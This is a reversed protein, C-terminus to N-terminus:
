RILSVKAPAGVAGLPFYIEDDALWAAIDVRPNCMAAHGTPATILRSKPLRAALVRSAPFPVIWDNPAGFVLTPIDIEALRPRLDLGAILTFRRGYASMPVDATKTWWEDRVAKPIGPGFFFFGRVPNTAPLNPKHPLWPGTLALLDIFLRRPYYAFTNVLVLRRVLDPRELALMLAVAGGFSEALVVGPGTEELQSIALKVLDEYTHPEDQPYSVCRLEHKQHLGTQRYLLRGTGDIGPLYIVPCKAPLSQDHILHHM